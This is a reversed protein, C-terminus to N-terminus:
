LLHHVMILLLNFSSSWVVLYEINVKMCNSTTYFSSMLLPLWAHITILYFDIFMRHIWLWKWMRCSDSSRSVDDCRLSTMMRQAFWQFSIVEQHIGQLEVRSGFPCNHRDSFSRLHKCCPLFIHLTLSAWVVALFTCLRSPPSTAFYPPAIVHTSPISHNLATTM